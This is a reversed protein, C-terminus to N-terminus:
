SRKGDASTFDAYSVAPNKALDVVINHLDDTLGFLVYYSATAEITNAIAAGQDITQQTMTRRVRVQEIVVILLAVIITQVVFATIFKSRLGFKTQSMPRPSTYRVFHQAILSSHQPRPAPSM